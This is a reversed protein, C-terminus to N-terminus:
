GWSWHPIMLKGMKIGAHPTGLPILCVWIDYQQNYITKAEIYIYIYIYMYMYMYM